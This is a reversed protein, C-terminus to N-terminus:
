VIFNLMIKYESCTWFVKHVMKRFSIFYCVCLSDHHCFWLCCYLFKWCDSSFAIVVWWLHNKNNSPIKPKETGDIMKASRRPFAHKSWHVLEFPWPKHNTSKSGNQKNRCKVLTMAITILLKPLWQSTQKLSKKQDKNNMESALIFCHGGGERWLFEM